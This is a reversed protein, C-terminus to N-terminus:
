LKKKQYFKEFERARKSNQVVYMHEIKQIYFTQGDCTTKAKNNPHVRGYHNPIRGRHLNARTKTM